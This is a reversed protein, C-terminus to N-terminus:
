VQPLSHLWEEANDETIITRKDCKHAKLRKQKIQEYAKTRGISYRECFQKLSMARQRERRAREAESLKKKKKMLLGDNTPCMGAFVADYM